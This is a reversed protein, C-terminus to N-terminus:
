RRLVITSVLFVVISAISLYIPLNITRSSAQLSRAKDPQVYVIDNQQLYFYPSKFVDKDTLNLHALTRVGEKERIVLVNERKGYPTLDGAIGIVELLSIHETPILFSSPKNVEGLVTIRFNIFSINVIPKKVSEELRTTLVKIAESRTLGGLHVNGIVPFKIFGEKDVLYGESAKRTTETNSLTNSSPLLISNNFLLNSEPNLSNVTISLLDNSQIIPETRNNIEQKYNPSSDINSFYVLNRNSSCSAFVISLIACLINFSSAKIM